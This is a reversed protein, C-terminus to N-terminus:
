RGSRPAAGEEPRVSWRLLKGDRLFAQRRNGPWTWEETAAPRDVLKREPYGWAMELAQPTMGEVPRKLAIAARQLEPLGRFAPGADATGVMRDLEGRVEEATTLTQSLVAVLPRAEGDLALYVWPHYRPTMVVRRAILWGTPFEVGQVRLPTGPLLVREAPPPAIPTGRASELLDLEELPQDSVLLKSSDGFLPAVYLAVKAFRLQGQLERSARQREEEPVTVRPACAALTVLSALSAFSVLLAPIRSRRM